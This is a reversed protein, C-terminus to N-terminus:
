CQNLGAQRLDLLANVPGAGGMGMGGSGRLPGPSGHLGRAQGAPGQSMLEINTSGQRAPLSLPKAIAGAWVAMCHARNAECGGPMAQRNHM